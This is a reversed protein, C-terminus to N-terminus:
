SQAGFPNLGRAKMEGIQGATLPAAPARKTKGNHDVKLTLSDPFGMEEFIDRPLIVQATGMGDADYVAVDGNHRLTVDVSHTTKM